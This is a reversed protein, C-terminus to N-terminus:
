SGSADRRRRPVRIRYLVLTTALVVFMFISWQLWRPPEGPLVASLLWTVIVVFGYKFLEWALWRM